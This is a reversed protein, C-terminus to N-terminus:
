LCVGLTQHGGRFKGEHKKTGKTTIREIEALPQAGGKVSTPSTCCGKACPAQGGSAACVAQPRQDSTDAQLM